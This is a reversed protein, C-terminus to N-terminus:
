ENVPRKGIKANTIEDKIPINAIRLPFHDLSFDMKTEAITILINIISVEGELTESIQNFMNRTTTKVPANKINNSMVFM